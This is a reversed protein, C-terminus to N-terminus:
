KKYKGKWDNVRIRLLDWMMNLPDSILRVHSNPPNQLSIPLEKIKCKLKNAIFILEADFAFRKVTAKSFIKMASDRKFVKFGCQTDKVNWDNIIMMRMIRFIKEMIKRHWQVPRVIKLGPVFRSAIVLDYGNKTEAVFKELEEIPIGLDADLFMIIEHRSALMGDRVVGGKGQNVKNDIIKIEIERSARELELLTKDLSGDNVAIIEWRDFRPALYDAIKKINGYITKEENFCPVVVSIQGNKM